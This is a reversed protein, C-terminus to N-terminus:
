YKKMTYTELKYNRTELSNFNNVMILPMSYDLLLLEVILRMSMVNVIKSSDSCNPTCKYTRERRIHLWNCIKLIFNTKKNKDFDSM